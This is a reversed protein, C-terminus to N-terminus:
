GFIYFGHDMESCEALLKVQQQNVRHEVYLLWVETESIQLTEAKMRELQHWDCSTDSKSGANRGTEQQEGADKLQGFSRWRLM